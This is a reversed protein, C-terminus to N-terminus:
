EDSHGKLKLFVDLTNKIVLKNYVLNILQGKDDFCIHWKSKKDKACPRDQKKLSILKGPIGIRNIIINRAMRAQAQSKNYTIKIINNALIPATRLFIIVIINFFLKM